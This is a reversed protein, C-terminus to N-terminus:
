TNGPTSRYGNCGRLSLWLLCTASITLQVSSPRVRVGACRFGTPEWATEPDDDIIPKARDDMPCRIISRRPHRREPGPALSQRKARGPACRIANALRRKSGVALIGVTEVWGHGNEGLRELIPAFSASADDRSEGCLTSPRDLGFRFTDTSNSRCIARIRLGSYSRLHHRLDSGNRANWSRQQIAAARWSLSGWM